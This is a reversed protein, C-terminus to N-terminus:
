LWPPVAEHPSRVWDEDRAHVWVPHDFGSGVTSLHIPGNCIACVANHAGRKIEDTLPM